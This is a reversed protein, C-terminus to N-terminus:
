DGPLGQPWRGKDAYFKRQEVDVTRVLGMRDCLMKMAYLAEGPFEVPNRWNDRPCIL